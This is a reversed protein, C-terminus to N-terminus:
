QFTYGITASTARTPIDLKATSTLAVKGYKDKVRIIADTKIPVYSASFNVSWAKDVQYSVGVNYLPRFASTAEAEASDTPDLTSATTLYSGTRKLGQAFNEHLRVHTFFSYGLGVGVFPHLKDDRERFYYQIMVSPFWHLVSAVPNNGPKGMEVPPVIKNLLGPTTVSGHGYIELKPPIGGVATIAWRDTMFYTLSLIPKVADGVTQETGPSSFSSPVLKTQTVISPSIENQQPGSYSHSNDINVAGGTIVFDGADAAAVSSVLALALGAISHSRKM